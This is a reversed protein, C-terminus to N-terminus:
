LLAMLGAAGIVIVVLGTSLRGAADDFIEDVVDGGPLDDLDPFNSNDDDDNPTNDDDDGGPLDIDIDPGSDEGDACNPNSEPCCFETGDICVEGTDCHV